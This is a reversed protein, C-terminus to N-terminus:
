GILKMMDWMPLFIALAVVLVVGAIAVILVPEIITGINKTLYSTERDYHRAVVACMRPMEASEEGASLMRKSFPSLYTCNNLVATLRGGSRVQEVMRDADAILMPRGSGRGAMELSEILGMGSSLSVGLVRAFRSIATGILIRNIYPVKHLLKDIVFRGGPRQWATRLGFIGGVVVALYAWWYSQISLGVAMLIRTFIPLEVNRSAFMAAFKPIVFGVLFTVAASLATVVCAPYMLASRVQQGTEVLRELMESLNELVKTMSGSREAARITEVYIDGFVRRHFDMATAVQEGAEIRTAIDTIVDRFAPNTEQAAISALGESISIRASLLVSFQYTFQAIERGRIRRRSRRVKARGQSISVPTLGMAAVQRYAESKSRAKATGRRQTGTSDIALYEFPLTSM